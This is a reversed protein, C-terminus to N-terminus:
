AEGNDVDFLDNPVYDYVVDSRPRYYHLQNVTDCSAIMWDEDLSPNWAIDTVRGLHGLHLFSLEVPACDDEDYEDPANVKELDWMVVRGDQGASALVSESFNAWDVSTVSGSHYILQHVEKDNKRIDWLKVMNDQGGTALQFSALPHFQLTNASVRHANAYEMACSHTRTDWMRVSGDGSASGLLHEQSGHWAVEYVSDKHGVYSRLAMVDREGSKLADTGNNEAISRIQAEIDWYMVAGDNGGSAVFGTRTSSWDLGFGAQRHGRLKVEPANSPQGGNEIMAQRVALDYVCVFGNTLKVAIIDTNQPMSRLKLVQGECPITQDVRTHGRINKFKMAATQPSTREDMENDSFDSDRGGLVGDDDDDPEIPIAVELINVYNQAQPPAQTSVAIYQLSYDRDPDVNKRDPLWALSMCPWELTQAAHFNYLQKVHSRYLAHLRLQAKTASESAEMAM